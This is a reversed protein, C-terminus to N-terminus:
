VAERLSDIRSESHGVAALRRLGFAARFHETGEHGPPTGRGRGGVRRSVTPLMRLIGLPDDPDCEQLPHASM